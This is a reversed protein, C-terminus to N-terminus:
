DFNKIGRGVLGTMRMAGWEWERPAPNDIQPALMPSMENREIKTTSTEGNKGLGGSWQCDPVDCKSGLFISPSLPFAERGWRDAM